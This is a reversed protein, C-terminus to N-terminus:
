YRKLFFENFVLVGVEVIVWLIVIEVEVLVVVSASVVVLLMSVEDVDVMGILVGLVLLEVLRKVLEGPWPTFLVAGRGGGITM